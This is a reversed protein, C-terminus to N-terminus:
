QGSERKYRRNQVLIYALAIPWFLGALVSLALGCCAEASMGALCAGIILYIYIAHIM